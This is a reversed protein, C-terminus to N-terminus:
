PVDEDGWPTHGAAFRALRTRTEPSALLRSFHAAADTWYPAPTSHYEAVLAKVSALARPDMRELRRVHRALTRDPADTVEDVLGIRWADAAPLVAAGLALWRACAAGVRRALAPFVMAPILGMLTEPLGFTARPTALVMDAAAALGVGGGLAPGDVVAIVPRPTREITQLLAAFRDLALTAGGPADGEPCRALASLDLGECFADGEGELTVVRAPGEEELAAVLREVLDPTLRAHGDESRITLRLRGMVARADPTGDILRDM